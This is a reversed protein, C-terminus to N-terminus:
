GRVGWGVGGTSVRVTICDAGLHSTSVRWTKSDLFVPDSFLPHTLGHDAALLRMGLM